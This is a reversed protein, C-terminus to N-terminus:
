VEKMRPNTSQNGLQLAHEKETSTEVVGFIINEM